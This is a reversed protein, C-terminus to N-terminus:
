TGKVQRPMHLTFTSGQGPTSAVEIRGSHLDMIRWAKCLGFGLGRGAERGSYFPDFIRERMAADMGPGLDRILLQYASPDSNQLTVVIAGGQGQAEIANTVVARIANALSTPDAMLPCPLAPVNLQWAIGAALAAAQQDATTKKLWAVLEIESPQLRPPKAFLMLDAIMEHARQAQTVIAALKQRRDDLKEDRLLAQARASINALPNNIEHGAGYAFEYLARLKTREIAATFDSELDVLKAREIDSLSNDPM